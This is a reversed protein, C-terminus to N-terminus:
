EGGEDEWDDLNDESLEEKASKLLSDIKDMAEKLEPPLETHDYETATPPMTKKEWKELEEDQNSPKFEVEFDPLKSPLPLKIEEDESLPALETPNVLDAPDVGEEGVELLLNKIDHKLEPHSHSLDLLTNYLKDSVENHDMTQAVKKIAMESVFYQMAETILDVSYDLNHQELTNAIKNLTHNIEALITAENKEILEENSNKFIYSNNQLAKAMGQEILHATKLM